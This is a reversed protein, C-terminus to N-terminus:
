IEVDNVCLFRTTTGEAQGHDLKARWISSASQPSWRFDELRESSCEFRSCSSTLFLGKTAPLAQRGIWLLTEAEAREVPRMGLSSCIGLCGASKRIPRFKREFYPTVLSGNAPLGYELAASAAPVLLLFHIAAEWVTIYGM